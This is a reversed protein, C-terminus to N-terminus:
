FVWGVDFGYGTFTFDHGDAGPNNFGYLGSRAKGDWNQFEVTLRTFARGFKVEAGAFAETVTTLEERFSTGTQWDGQLVSLRGGYVASVASVLNTRGEGAFTAGAADTKEDNGSEIVQDGNPLRMVNYQNHDIHALRAGGAFLFDSHNLRLHTLAELDIVDFDLRHSRDFGPSNGVIPVILTSAEDYGWYRVRAGVVDDYGLVIRPALAREPNYESDFWLMQLDAFFGPQPPSQAWAAAAALMPFALVVIRIM